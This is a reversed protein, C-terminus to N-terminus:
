RADDELHGTCKGKHYVGFRVATHGPSLASPVRASLLRAVARAWARVEGTFWWRADETSQRCWDWCSGEAGAWPM